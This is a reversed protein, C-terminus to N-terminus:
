ENGWEEYFNRLYKKIFKTRKKAIKKGSKTNMLSELKLLKDYFHSIADESGNEYYSEKTLKVEKKNPVYLPKDHKGSYSFTRAIGLAGLADVRDADQVIMGELSLKKISDINASFGLNEISYIIDDLGKIKM